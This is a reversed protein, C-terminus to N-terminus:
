LGKSEGIVRIRGSLVKSSDQAHILNVCFLLLILYYKKMGTNLMLVCFAPIEM